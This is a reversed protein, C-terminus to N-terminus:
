KSLWGCCECPRREARRSGDFSPQPQQGVRPDNPHNSKNLIQMVAYLSIVKDDLSGTVRNPAPGKGDRGNHPTGHITLNILLELNIRKLFQKQSM